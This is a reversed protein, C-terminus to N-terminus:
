TTEHPYLLSHIHLQSTRGQRQARGIAQDRATAMSHLLIVDTACSIDIGSGAHYTSLLVVKVHGERFSELARMMHQTSGKMEVYSVNDEQLKEMISYFAADIKSFILFKGNPRNRIIDIVTDEKSLLEDPLATGGTSGSAMDTHSVIAHLQKLNIPSRCTPCANGTRMWTMLCKGCYVHTCDLMIPNTYNDYCITCQKEELMTVREVLNQLKDRLRQLDVNLTALRAERVDESIMMTAFMNIEIEKNHIDRKIEHSVLDVIDAETHSSGGLEMIAGRIDNANIREQVTPTLFPQVAALIRNFKCIYYHQIAPPIAFSQQIFERTSKVLMMSMYEEVFLERVGWVMNTRSGYGTLTLVTYTASILWLFHFKVLPMKSVIDHAEDIMVRDWANFAMPLNPYMKAMTLFTTNKILVVDYGEFFAKIEAPTATDPPMVRRITPLSDLSLLRLTTQTQIANEWQVYVPGRPVVVLTSHIYLDDGTSLHASTTASFIGRGHANVSRTIQCERIIDQPPTAAIISLAELTKGYGVQDGLIGVNTRVDVDGHITHLNRYNRANNIELDDHDLKYCARGTRELLVAKYLGAQQHPKLPVTIKDPDNARPDDENLYLSYRHAHTDATTAAMFAGIFLLVKRIRLGVIM